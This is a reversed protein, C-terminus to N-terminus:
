NHKNKKAYFYALRSLLTAVTSFVIGVTVITYLIQVPFLLTLGIGGFLLSGYYKGVPDYITQKAYFNTLVFQAFVLTIFLLIWPQFLGKSIFVGYMGTIFLFDVSADLHSGLKSASKTRRALYGDLFDTGISFLFLAYVAFTLELSFSCILFPLAVLRLSTIANPINRRLTWM